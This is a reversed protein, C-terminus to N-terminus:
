KSETSLGGGEKAEYESSSGGLDLGRANTSFYLESNQRKGEERRPGRKKDTEAKTTFGGNTIRRPPAHIEGHRERVNRSRWKVPKWWSYSTKVAKINSPPVLLAM